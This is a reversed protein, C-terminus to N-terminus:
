GKFEKLAKKLEDKDEDSMVFLQETRPNESNEIRAIIQKTTLGDIGFALVDDITILSYSYPAENLETDITHLAFTM